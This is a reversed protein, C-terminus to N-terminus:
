APLSPPSSPHNLIAGKVDAADVLPTLYGPRDGPGFLTARVAPLVDWFEALADVDRV